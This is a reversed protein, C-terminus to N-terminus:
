SVTRAHPHACGEDVEGHDDEAEAGRQQDGEESLHAQRAAWDREEAVRALARIVQHLAAEAEAIEEATPPVLVEVEGDAGLRVVAM